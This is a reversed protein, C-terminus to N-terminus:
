NVNSFTFTPSKREVGQHFYLHKLADTSTIRKKPDLTLLSQFLDFGHSDLFSQHGCGSFQNTQFQHYLKSTEKKWRFTKTNPLSSFDPWSESTPTGLLKFIKDIQDLEGQGQMLAEKTILEGFICGVSSISIVIFYIYINIYIYIYLFSIFSEGGCILKQVM